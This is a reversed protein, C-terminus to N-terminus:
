RAALPKPPDSAKQLFDDPRTTWADVRVEQVFRRGVPLLVVFLLGILDGLAARVLVDDLLGQLLVDLALFETLFAGFVGAHILVPDPLCVFGASLFVVLVEFSFEFRAALCPVAPLSRRGGALGRTGDCRPISWTRCHSTATGARPSWRRRPSGCADKIARGSRRGKGLSYYRVELVIVGIECPGSVM